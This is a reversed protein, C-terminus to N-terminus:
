TQLKWHVERRKGTLDAEREMRIHHIDHTYFLVKAQPCFSRIADINREVVM